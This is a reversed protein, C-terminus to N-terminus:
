IVVFCDLCLFDRKTQEASVPSWSRGTLWALAEVGFFLYLRFLELKLLRQQM